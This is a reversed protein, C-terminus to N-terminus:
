EQGRALRFGLRDFRSGPLYAFRFAARLGRADGGWSGGRVVRQSGGTPGVPDPQGEPEYSGHWDACWEWVNGLTDFLGWDNPRKLGVVHTGGRDAEYQKEKWSSVDWGSKLEFDVGCNGGYWAIPDLAPANRQGRIELDGAYTATTTGARCAYEWEAETPLRLDLGVRMENARRLFGQVEEFSVQEVPRDPAVFRSPNKGEVAEWFVQTCPTDALWFGRTLEVAHQREDEFRGAEEEPSGMTFRGPAIWRMRQVANGISIETFVGYRDEGWGSAWEPPLGLSLPHDRYDIM